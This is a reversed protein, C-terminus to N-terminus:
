GIYHSSGVYTAGKHTIIDHLVQNPSLLPINLQIQLPSRTASTCAIPVLAIKTSDHEVIALGIQENGMNTVKGSVIQLKSSVRYNSVKAASDTDQHTPLSSRLAGEHNPLNQGIENNNVDIIAEIKNAHDIITNTSTDEFPTAGNHESNYVIEQEEDSWKDVADKTTAPSAVFSQSTRRSM